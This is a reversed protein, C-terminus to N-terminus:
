RIFTVLLLIIIKHRARACSILRVGKVNKHHPGTETFKNEYYNKPWLFTTKLEKRGM